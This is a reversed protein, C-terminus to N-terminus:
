LFSLSPYFDIKKNQLQLFVQSAGHYHANFELVLTYNINARMWLYTDMGIIWFYMIIIILARYTPFVVEYNIDNDIDVEDGIALFIIIVIFILSFGLFLGLVFLHDRSFFKGYTAHRPM